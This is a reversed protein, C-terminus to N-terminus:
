QRVPVRSNLFAIQDAVVGEFHPDVYPDFHGCPYTKFEADPIRGAIWRSAKTPTLEDREGAQVLTPATIRHLQPCADFTDEAAVTVLMDPRLVEYIEGKDDYLGGTYMDRGVRILAFKKMYTDEPTFEGHLVGRDYTVNM